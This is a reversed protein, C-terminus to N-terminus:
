VNLRQVVAEYEYRRKIAGCHLFVTLAQQYLDRTIELAGNWCGLRQYRAITSTLVELEVAPFLDKELRVIDNANAQNVFDRGNRYAKLFARAKETKLFETSAMLSSFAVAPMAEGVSAVVNGVGDNELEQAAPGQLHVYDGAGQRFRADMQEPAGADILAVQKWEVQNIEAAYRLMVLPQSGHDAVLTSGELRKWDFAEGPKRAVIFFGDRRNIQAFHAPLDSAGSDMAAWNSSVASQMVEVDGRRILEHSRQGPQLVSYTSQLGEAKLFGGNITALLPSYFASHRSAM